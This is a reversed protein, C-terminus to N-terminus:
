FDTHSAWEQATPAVQQVDSFSGIVEPSLYHVIPTM